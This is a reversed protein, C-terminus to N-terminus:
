FRTRRLIGAGANRLVHAHRAIAHDARSAQRDHGHRAEERAEVFAPDLQLAQNYLTEADVYRKQAVRVDGLRSYPLPSKPALQISKNLDAEALAYNTQRAEALARLDYGDPLAPRLAIIAAASTKALDLDNLDIALQSLARQAEILNPQLKV